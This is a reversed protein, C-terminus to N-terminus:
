FVGKQYIKSAALPLDGTPNILNMIKYIHKLGDVQLYASFM